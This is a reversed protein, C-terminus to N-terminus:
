RLGRCKDASATKNILNSYLTLSKQYDGGDFAMTASLLM